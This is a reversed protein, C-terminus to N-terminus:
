AKLGTRLFRVTVPKVLLNPTVSLSVTDGSRSVDVTGMDGNNDITGFQAINIQQGDILVNIETSYFKNDGNSTKSISVIYKVMRWESALFTDVVTYNEIGTIQIENNGHSGLNTAQSALTDILNAFDTGTPIDGSQFYTKLQDLSLETM